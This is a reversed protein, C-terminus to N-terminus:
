LFSRLPLIIACYFRLSMSKMFVYMIITLFLAKWVVVDIYILSNQLLNAHELMQTSQFCCISFSLHLTARGFDANRSMDKPIITLFIARQFITCYSHFNTAFVCIVILQLPPFLTASKALRIM